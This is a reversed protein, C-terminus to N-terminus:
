PRDYAPAENRGQVGGFISSNLPDFASVDSLKADRWRIVHSAGAGTDLQDTPDFNALGVEGIQM